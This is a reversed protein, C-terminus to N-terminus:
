SPGSRRGAVSFWAERREEPHVKVVGSARILWDFHSRGSSLTWRFRKELSM